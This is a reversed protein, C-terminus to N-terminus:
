KKRRAQKLAKLIDGRLTNIHTDGLDELDDLNLIRIYSNNIEKKEFFDIEEKELAIWQVLCSNLVNDVEDEDFVNKEQKLANISQRLTSGHIARGEHPNKKGMKGIHQGKIRAGLSSKTQGVYFCYYKEGNCSEMELYKELVSFEFPNNGYNSLSQLFDCLLEKKGWWKYVGGCKPLGITTAKNGRIEVVPTLRSFKM